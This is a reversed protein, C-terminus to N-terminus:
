PPAAEGRGSPRPLRRRGAHAEPPGPPFAADRTAHYAVRTTAHHLRPRAGGSGLRERIVQEGREGNACALPILYTEDAGESYHVRALTLYVSGAGTRMPVSEAVEVARITRAKGAFWRREKLYAPLADALPSRGPQACM